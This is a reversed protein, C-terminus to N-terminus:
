MCKGEDLGSVLEAYVFCISIHYLESSGTLLRPTLQHTSFVVLFVPGCIGNEEMVFLM